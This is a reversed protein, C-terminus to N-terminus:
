QYKADIEIGSPSIRVSDVVQGDMELQERIETRWALPNYDLLMDSLGVGMYPNEKLEGKHMNLIIAQNQALVDGIVMGSVIKGTEDRVVEVSLDYDALQIGKM